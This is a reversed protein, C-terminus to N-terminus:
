EIFIIPSDNPLTFSLSGELSKSAIVKGDELIFVFSFPCNFEKSFDKSLSFTKEEGLVFTATALADSILASPSIVTVSVVGSEAPYGTKLNFIHSYRKGDVELYREYDGSTIVSTEDTKLTLLPTAKPSFPDKIGVNWKESNEKKGLVYVDGGLDVIAKKVKKEKLFNRIEDLAFGKAIGGFNLKMGSKKLFVTNGDLLIDHYDTLSLINEVESKSPIRAHSTNIGWMEILAGSAPNFAGETIQAVLLSSKLVLCTEDRIDVPSIGANNNIKSLESEPLTVSMMNEIQTLHSFIEEYLSSSGEEFLNVTCITNMCTKTCPGTSKKCSFFIPILFFSLTFLKKM